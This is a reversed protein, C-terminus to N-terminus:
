LKFLDDPRKDEINNAAIYEIFDDIFIIIKTKILEFTVEDKKIKGKVFDDDLDVAQIFVSVMPHGEKLFDISLTAAHHWIFEKNYFRLEEWCTEDYTINQLNNRAQQITM